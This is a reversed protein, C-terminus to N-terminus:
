RLLKNLRADIDDIKEKEDDNIIEGGDSTYDKLMKIIDMEFTPNNSFEDIYMEDPIPGSESPELYPHEKFWKQYELVKDRNTGTHQNGYMDYDKGNFKPLKENLFEKFEDDGIKYINFKSPLDIKNKKRNNNYKEFATIISALEEPPFSQKTKVDM